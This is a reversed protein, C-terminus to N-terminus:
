SRALRIDGPDPCIGAEYGRRLLEGIAREGLEGADLTLDNVYMGVFRELMAANAGPSSTFGGAYSMAEERHACAFRISEALIGVVERSAGRGFREDLDRRVANGGLPLPLGTEELWWAGLDAVLVLGAEHFSLQAEHIVLGADAEGTAVTEIVREFPVEISRFEAGLMLRLTLYASTRVGPIAIIAGREILSGPALVERAVLKPGYGEGMSAGCATLQYDGRVSPYTHMSIATIDLDACEVARRNLREIDEAIPVFRFRGTDIRPPTEPGGLPWWMFADDPDPSHGITLSTPTAM